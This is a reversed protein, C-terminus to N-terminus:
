IKREFIKYKENISLIQSNLLYEVLKMPEIYNNLIQNLEVAHYEKAQSNYIAPGLDQLFQHALELAKKSM